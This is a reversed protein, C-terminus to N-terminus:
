DSINGTKPTDPLVLILVSAVFNIGAYILWIPFYVGRTDYVLGAIPAGAMVGLTVFVAVLGFIKGFSGAGFYARVVPARITTSGGAAFGHILAFIVVPVYSDTNLFSFLTLGVVTLVMSSAMVYKKKFIDAVIGYLIRAPISGIAFISVTLAAKGAEIGTSTLYPIMHLAVAHLSATQLITAIGIFWFSRMKLAESVSVSFDGTIVTEVEEHSKGDPLMGYDEPRSRFLFSLPIGIIMLGIALYVLTNQWTYTEIMNQMLPACIGGAGLGIALMGSAKGINERFWRAIVTMPVMSISTASGLGTILFSIYFLALNTSRSICFIGLAFLCIGIVMLKRASWRDAAVGILPDLTGTELGRLSMAISVQAYSWSFTTAIPTMFATFGYVFIASNYTSLLLAATVIYWGYFVKKM